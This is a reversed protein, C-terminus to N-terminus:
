RGLAWAAAVNVVAGVLGVAVVFAGDVDPPSFLRQIAAVAIVGALVLLAAGNVQASLIEARGLGFTFRGTPPRAALRAAVLALALSGADTLMHAADSLLALSDALLGAVVETVMFALILALAAALRRRDATPSVAHHHHEHPHHTHAELSM